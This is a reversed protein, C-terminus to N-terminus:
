LDVVAFSSAAATRRGAEEIDGLVEFQAEGRANCFRHWPHM